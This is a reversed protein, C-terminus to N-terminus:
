EKTKFSKFGVKENLTSWLSEKKKHKSKYKINILLLVKCSIKKFSKDQVFIPDM